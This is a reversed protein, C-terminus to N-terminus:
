LYRRITAVTRYDYRLLKPGAENGHSVALGNGVYITVHSYPYSGYFVLDGPAPRTVRWGHNALTGTYGYGNYGLANPDKAGAHWYCWTAFSSCDEWYPIQPIRVKNRVGYMRSGGQTYHIRSRNRMGFMAALVVRERVSGTSSGRAAHSRYLFWALSDFYRALKEHTKPGYVGTEPLGIKKQFRKVHKRMGVGFLGTRRANRVGARSLARQVASVDKGRSGLKLTRKLPMM